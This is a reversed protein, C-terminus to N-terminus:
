GSLRGGKLIPDILLAVKGQIFTEWLINCAKATIKMGLFAFNWRCFCSNDSDSSSDSRLLCIELPKGRPGAPRPPHDPSSPAPTFSPSRILSKQPNGYTWLDKIVSKHKSREFGLRKQFSSGHHNGHWSPSLRLFHVREHWSATPRSGGASPRRQRALHRKKIASSLIRLIVSTTPKNPRPMKVWVWKHYEMKLCHYVGTKSLGMYTYPSLFSTMELELIEAYKMMGDQPKGSKGHWSIPRHHDWCNPIRFNWTKDDNDRTFSYNQDTERPVHTCLCVCLYIYIYIDTHTCMM